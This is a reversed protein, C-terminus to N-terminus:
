ESPLVEGGLTRSEGAIFELVNISRMIEGKSESITKGEERTLQLALENIGASMIQAVKMLLKGRTISSTRRWAPLAAQAAAIAAKADERTALTISGVLDNSDAPNRREVRRSGSSSAWKGNIYNKADAIQVEATTAM